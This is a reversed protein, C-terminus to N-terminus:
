STEGRFLEADMGGPRLLAENKIGFPILVSPIQEAAPELHALQDDFYIHPKLVELLRRKEIGGMLFVETANMGWEHLTTVLRENAPANRATVISVRVAPKYGAEARARRAELKQFFGIKTFLDKLPGPVHPTKAKQLEYDFFADLQQGAYVRESEDNALVGDFDFAIRLEHDAPDDVAKSPLVLGAPLGARTADVVDPLHASLLVSANFAVLFPYPSEGSLFAGRTINLGHAQCSRFFRQGTDPSNRSLVVVEVPEEEPYLANLRLLRRVFPFAVGPSLVKELNRTQYTRYEDVGGSVFVNNAEELDFLARSSVAVVLKREIPYPM